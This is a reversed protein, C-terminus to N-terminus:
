NLKSKVAKASHTSLYLMHCVFFVVKAIEDVIIDSIGAVFHSKCCVTM